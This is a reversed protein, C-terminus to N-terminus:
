KKASSINDIYINANGKRIYSITKNANFVKYPSFAFIKQYITSRSPLITKRYHKQAEQPDFLSEKLKVSIPYHTYVEKPYMDTINKIKSAAQLLNGTKLYILGLALQAKVPQINQVIAENLHDVALNFNGVRAYLLGLSFEDLPSSNKEMVEIAKFDNEYLAYIKASLHKQVDPYATSTANKLANLTALYNEKYYNILAYYYSYLPSNAEHPLYAYALDIYYHFSEEDKLHLACVAANIASVCRKENNKIAQSFTELAKKYQQNKLQAVGLNYKSIAESYNAIEEYLALAKEKSGNAYLYDAKAIMNELKSIEVYNSEKHKLKEDLGSINNDIVEQSKNSSSLLFILIVIISILLVGLAGFIILKKKKSTDEVVDEVTDQSDDTADEIAHDDEIIIIDETQEAM